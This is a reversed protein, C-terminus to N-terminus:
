KVEEFIGIEDMFKEICPICTHCSVAEGDMFGSERLAYEGVKITKQCSVCKHEKRCKVIAGKKCSIELDVDEYFGCNLYDQKEYKM